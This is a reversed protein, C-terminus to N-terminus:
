QKTPPLQNTTPVPNAPASPTSPSGPDASSTSAKLPQGFSSLTAFNVGAPGATALTTGLLDNLHFTIEGPKGVPHSAIPIGGSPHPEILYLTDNRKILALGDWLFSDSSSKLNSIQSQSPSPSSIAALQGDPWYTHTIEGGGPLTARTLKDLWGYRHTPQPGSGTMRGARDYHYALSSKAASELAAPSIPISAAAGATAPGLDYSKVLQNAANYTMASLQGHLLKTLMNGASDYTYAELVSQDSEDIVKLLQGSPDYAYRLTRENWTRRTLQDADDWEYILNLPSTLRGGQFTMRGLHGASDYGIDVTLAPRDREPTGYTKRLARGAFDYQYSIAPMGNTLIASLRGAPDFLQETQQIAQYCGADDGPKVRKSILLGSRQGRLNHRYSLLYDESGSAARTALPRGASDYSFEFSSDPGTATLPRGDKDHTYTLKQGGGYDISTLRGDKGYAHRIVQEGNARETLKGTKPDFKWSQFNGLANTQKVLRGAPDYEFAIRNGNGDIQATRRDLADYEYRTITGNPAIQATLNGRRDRELRSLRKLSDKEGTVRHFEDRVFEKIIRGNRKIRSQHGDADYLIETKTGDPALRMALRGNEDYEVKESRGGASVSVHRGFKDYAYEVKDGAPNTVSALEGRPTYSYQTINGQGDKVAAVRGDKHYRYEAIIESKRRTGRRIRLPQPDWEDGKNTKFAPDYDYFTSVGAADIMETLLGTKRDYRYELVTKGNEEIRRLKGDYRQAPARYYYTKHAVGDRTSTVVGRNAAYDSKEVLGSRYTVTVAAPNLKKKDKEKGDKMFGYSYTGLQDEILWHNVPRRKSAFEDALTGNKVPDVFQTKFTEVGSPEDTNGNGAKWLVGTEPHYLFRATEGAPPAWASLKDATGDKLYAFKHAQGHLKLGSVRENGGYVLHLLLLHGGAAADTLRVGTLQRKNWEFELIRRTPSIVAALRGKAYQFQWGEQNSIEFRGKSSQARWLRDQSRFDRQGGAAQELLAQQGSPMTWLLYGKAVPMLSSELQPCFWQSGFLGDQDRGTFYVLQLPFDFEHSASVQGLNYSSAWGGLYQVRAAAPPNYTWSPAAAQL